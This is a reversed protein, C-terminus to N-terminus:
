GELFGIEIDAMPYRDKEEFCLPLVESWYAFAQRLISRQVTRDGTRHATMLRWTIKRQSLIGGYDDSVSVDLTSRKNKQQAFEHLKRPTVEERRIEEIYSLLQRRRRDSYQDSQIPLLLVDRLSRTQRDTKEEGVSENKPSTVDNDPQGCRRQSMQHRTHNDCVGTLTLGFNKQFVKLAITFDSDNCVGTLTTDDDSLDLVDSAGM